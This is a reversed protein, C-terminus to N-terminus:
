SVPDRVLADVQRLVDVRTAEALAFGSTRATRRRWLEHRARSWRASWAIWAVAGVPALLAVAGASRRGRARGLLLAETGWFVPCALFAVIAKMTAQWGEGHVFRSATGVTLVIPASTLM